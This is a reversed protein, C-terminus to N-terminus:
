KLEFIGKSLAVPSEFRCDEIFNWLNVACIMCWCRKKAELKHYEDCIAVNCM